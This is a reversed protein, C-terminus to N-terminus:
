VHLDIIQSDDNYVIGKTLIDLVYKIGGDIDRRRHDGFYFTMTVIVNNQLPTRNHM